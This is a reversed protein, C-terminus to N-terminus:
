AKGTAARQSETKLLQSAALELTAGGYRATAHKLAAARCFASTLSPGVIITEASIGSATRDMRIQDACVIM